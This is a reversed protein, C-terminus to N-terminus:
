NRTVVIIYNPNIDELFGAYVIEDKFREPMHWECIVSLKKQYRSDKSSSDRSEQSNLRIGQVTSAESASSSCCLISNPPPM